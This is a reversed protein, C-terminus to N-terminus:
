TAALFDGGCGFGGGTVFDNKSSPSESTISPKELSKTEEVNSSTQLVCHVPRWQTGSNQSGPLVLYGNVWVSRFSFVIKTVEIAEESKYSHLSLQAFTLYHIAPM